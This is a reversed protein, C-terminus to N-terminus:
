IASLATYRATASGPDIQGHGEGLEAMAGTWDSLRTM